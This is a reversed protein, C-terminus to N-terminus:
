GLASTIVRGDWSSHLPLGLLHAVTPCTDFLRVEESIEYGARVGPGHLLWPVLMDEDCDTGHTREHGGHDSLVLTVTDGARGLREITGLVSAVCRDANSVAEVYGESMWGHDHGAAGPGGLYVFLFDFDIREIYNVAMESVHSDGAPYKDPAFMLAVDLSGPSSLDRLPEWNYFFGTRMGQAKAVDIVSPVPRALPQYDNTTIGHRPVDVGRLMSVHCPLTVSPMVSRARPTYAGERRLRELTPTRVADIAEPRVGDISCLFVRNRDM